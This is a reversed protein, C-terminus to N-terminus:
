GGRAPRESGLLTGDVDEVRSVQVPRVVPLAFRQEYDSFYRPLVDKAREAAAAAPVPLGPLAAINHVAM